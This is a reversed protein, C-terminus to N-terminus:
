KLWNEYDTLLYPTSCNGYNLDPSQKELDNVLQKELCGLVSELFYVPWSGCQEPEYPVMSFLTQNRLRIYLQEGLQNQILNRLHDFIRKLMKLHIDRGLYSRFDEIGSIAQIAQFPSAYFLIEPSSYGSSQYMMTVLEAVENRDIPQVSSELAHWKECFAPIQVELEDCMGVLNRKEAM